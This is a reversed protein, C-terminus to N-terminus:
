CACDCDLFQNQVEKWDQLHKHQEVIHENIILTDTGVRGFYHLLKQDHIQSGSNELERSERWGSLGKLRQNFCM